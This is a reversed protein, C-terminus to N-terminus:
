TGGDPSGPFRAPNGTRRSPSIAAPTKHTAAAPCISDIGAPIASTIAEQASSRNVIRNSSPESLASKGRRASDGSVSTPAAYQINM